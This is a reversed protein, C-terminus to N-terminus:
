QRLRYIWTEQEDESVHYYQGAPVGIAKSLKDPVVIMRRGFADMLSAPVDVDVTFDQTVGGSGVKHWTM